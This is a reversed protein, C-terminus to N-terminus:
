SVKVEMDPTTDDKDGYVMEAAKELQQPSMKILMEVLLNDLEEETLNKITEDGM